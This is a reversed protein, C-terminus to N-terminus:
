AAPRGLALTRDWDEEDEDEDDHEATKRITPVFSGDSAKGNMRRGDEVAEIGL